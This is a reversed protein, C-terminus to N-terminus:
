GLGHVGPHDPPCECFSSINRGLLFDTLKNQWAATSPFQRNGVSTPVWVGGWEGLLVPTGTTVAVNAWHDSWVTPMNAPFDIASM